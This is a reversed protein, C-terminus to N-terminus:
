FTYTCSLTYKNIKAVKEHADVLFDNEDKLFYLCISFCTDFGGDVIEIFDLYVACGYLYCRLAIKTIETM